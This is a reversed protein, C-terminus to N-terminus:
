LLNSLVLGSKRQFFNLFKFKARTEQADHRYLIPEAALIHTRASHMM